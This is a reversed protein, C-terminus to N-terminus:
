GTQPRLGSCDGCRPTAFFNERQCTPCTWNEPVSGPEAVRELMGQLAVMLDAELGTRLFQSFSPHSAEGRELYLRLYARPLRGALAAASLEWLLGAQTGPEPNKLRASQMAEYLESLERLLPVPDQESVLCQQLHDLLMEFRYPLEVGPEPPLVLEARLDEWEQRLRPLAEGALYAFCAPASELAMEFEDGLPFRYNQYRALVRREVKREHAFLHQVLEIGEQLQGLLSELQDSPRLLATYARDAQSWGLDLAGAVEPPLHSRYRELRRRADDLYASVAPMRRQVAAPPARRRLFAWGAQLFENVVPHASLARAERRLRLRRARDYLEVARDTFGETSSAHRVEDLIVALNAFEVEEAEDLSFDGQEALWSQLRELELTCAELERAELPIGDELADVVLCVARPMLLMSAIIRDVSGGEGTLPPRTLQPGPHPYGATSAQWRPRIAPPLPLSGATRRMRSKSEEPDARSHSRPFLLLYALLTCCGPAAGTDLPRSDLSVEFGGLVGIGPGM